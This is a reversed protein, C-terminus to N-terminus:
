SQLIISDDGVYLFLCTEKASKRDLRVRYNTRTSKDKYVYIECDQVVGPEWHAYKSRYNKVMVKKEPLAKVTTTIQM